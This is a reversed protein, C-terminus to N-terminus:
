KIDRLIALVDTLDKAIRQLRQETCYQISIKQLEYPRWLDCGDDKKVRRNSLSKAINTNVCHGLSTPKFTRDAGIVYYRQFYRCNSCTTAECKECM